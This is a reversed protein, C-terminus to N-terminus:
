GPPSGPPDPYCPFEYAGPEADLEEVFWPPLFRRALSAMM